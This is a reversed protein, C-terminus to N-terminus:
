FKSDRRIQFRINRDPDRGVVTPGAIVYSSGAAAIPSGSSAPGFPVPSLGVRAQDIAENSRALPASQKASAAHGALACAVAGTIVLWRRM